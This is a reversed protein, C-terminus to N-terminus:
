RRSISSSARRTRRARKGVAGLVLPHMVLSAAPAGLARDARRHAAHPPRRLRRARVPTADLYPDLERQARPRAARAAVLREVIAAGDDALVAALEDASTTAPLHRIKM